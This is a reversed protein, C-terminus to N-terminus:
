QGSGMGEAWARAAEAAAARKEERRQNLKEARNEAMVESARMVRQLVDDPPQGLVEAIKRARRPEPASKAKEWSRLARESVGIAAAVDVQSGVAPRLRSFWEAFDDLASM